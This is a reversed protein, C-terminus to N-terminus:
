GAAGAVSRAARPRTWDSLDRELMAGLRDIDPRLAEIVLEREAETPEAGAASRFYWRRLSRKLSAPLVARLRRKVRTQHLMRNIRGFRPLAAPNAREARAPLDFPAVGLFAALRDLTPGPRASLDDTLLVLIRDSSFAQFYRELQEAYRGLSVYLRSTSWCATRDSLEREIEEGFSRTTIGIRRDMLYHSYARAAPDRLVAIIRAAPEFDAIAGAASRSYLYTTSCEGRAPYGSGPGFLRLYDARSEVWAVQVPPRESADLYAALDLPLRDNRASSVAHPHLDACFHNPEKIPSVFISPHRALHGYLTTTGAKPAGVVFFNPGATREM